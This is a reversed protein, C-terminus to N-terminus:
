IAADFRNYGELIAVRTYGCVSATAGSGRLSRATRATDFGCGSRTAPHAARTTQSCSSYGSYAISVAASLAASAL